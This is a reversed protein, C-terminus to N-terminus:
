TVKLEDKLKFLAGNKIIDNCNRDVFAFNKIKKICFHIHFTKIYIYM